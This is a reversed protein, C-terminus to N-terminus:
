DDHSAPGTVDANLHLRNLAQQMEYEAMFNFEEDASKLQELKKELTANRQVIEYVRILDPHMARLARDYRVWESRTQAYRDFEIRIAEDEATEVDLIHFTNNIEVLHFLRERLLEEPSTSYFSFLPYIRFLLPRKLELAQEYRAVTAAINM